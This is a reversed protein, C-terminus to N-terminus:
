HDKFAVGLTKLLAKMRQYHSGQWYIKRCNACQWFRHYYAATNKELVKEVAPKEVPALLGNCHLCRSFPKAKPLLFFRTLLENLQVEPDQHSVYHFSLSRQAFFSADRSLLVRGERVAMELLENKAAGNSYATDFGLLRLLRALKGLHV